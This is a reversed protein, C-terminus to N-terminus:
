AGLSFRSAHSQQFLLPSFHSSFPFLVFPSLFSPPPFFLPPYTLTTRRRRQRDSPVDADRRRDGDQWRHPTLSSRVWRRRGVRYRLHRRVNDSGGRKNRRGGGAGRAAVNGGSSKDCVVGGLLMAITVERKLGSALASRGRCRWAQLGVGAVARVGQCLWLGGVGGEVGHQTDSGKKLRVGICERGLLAAGESGCGVGGECKSLAV